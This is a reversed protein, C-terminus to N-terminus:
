CIDARMRQLAADYEAKLRDVVNAAPGVSRVAGIGHGAGWIERWAKPLPSDDPMVSVDWTKPLNHPDLGVRAISRKLYNAPHGTFLASTIVDEASGAVMM